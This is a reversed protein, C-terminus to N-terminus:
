RLDHALAALSAFNRPVRSGHSAGGPLPDRNLDPDPDPTQHWSMASVKLADVAGAAELDFSPRVLHFRSEELDLSPRVPDSRSQELHFSPRVLLLRPGELHFRPRM